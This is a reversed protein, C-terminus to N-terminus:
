SVTPDIQKAYKIVNKDDHIDYNSRSGSSGIVCLSSWEYRILKSARSDIDQTLRGDFVYLMYLLDFHFTYHFLLM